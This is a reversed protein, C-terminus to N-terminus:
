RAKRLYESLLALAVGMDWVEKEVQGISESRRMAMVKVVSGKWRTLCSSLEPSFRKGKINMIRDVMTVVRAQERMIDVLLKDLKTPSPPLSPVQVSNNSSIKKGTNQKAITAEIEKRDKELAKFQWQVEGVRLQLDSTSGVIPQYSPASPPQM